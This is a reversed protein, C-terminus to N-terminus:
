EFHNKLLDTNGPANLVQDLALHCYSFILPVFQCFAKPQQLEKKCSFNHLCTKYKAELCVTM